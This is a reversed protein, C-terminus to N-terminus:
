RTAVGQTKQPALCYLLPLESITQRRKLLLDDIAFFRVRIKTESTNSKAMAELEDSLRLSPIVPVLKTTPNIPKNVEKTRPFDLKLGVTKKHQPRIRPKEIAAPSLEDFLEM